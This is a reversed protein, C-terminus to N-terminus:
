AGRRLVYRSGRQVSPRARSPRQDPLVVAAQALAGGCRGPAGPPGVGGTRLLRALGPGRVPVARGARLSAHVRCGDGSGRPCRAGGRGAGAVRGCPRRRAGTAPRLPPLGPVPRHRRLRPDGPAGPPPLAQGVLRSALLAASRRLAPPVAGPRRAAAHPRGLRTRGAPPDRRQAAAAPPRGPRPAAGALSRFLTTYPFTYFDTPPPNNIFLCSFVHTDFKPPRVI